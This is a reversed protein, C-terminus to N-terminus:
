RRWIMAAPRGKGPCRRPLRRGPLPNAAPVPGSASGDLPRSPVLLGGIFGHLQIRIAPRAAVSAAHSGLAGAACAPGAFGALADEGRVLAASGAVDAGLPSTPVTTPVNM